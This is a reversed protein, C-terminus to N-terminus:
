PMPFFVSLYSLPTLLPTRLHELTTAKHTVAELRDEEATSLYMAFGDLQDMIVRGAATPAKILEYFVAVTTMIGLTIPIIWLSTIGALMGIAILEGALFPIAFLTGCVASSYGAFKGVASANIIATRWSSVVQHLLLIVGCSWGALWLFLFAAIGTVELGGAVFVVMVLVTFSLLLGGLFWTRNPRFLTGEFERVLSKRLTTIASSFTQHHKRDIAISDRGYLLCDFIKTEGDSTSSTPAGTKELTYCRKTKRITLAQQTALSLLAVSFCEKDFGM